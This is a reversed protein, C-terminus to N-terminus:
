HRIRVIIPGKLDVGVDTSISVLEAFIDEVTPRDSPNLKLM